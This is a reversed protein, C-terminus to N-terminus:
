SKHKDISGNVYFKMKYVWKYGVINEGLPLSVLEWIENKM